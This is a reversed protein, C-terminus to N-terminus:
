HENSKDKPELNELRTELENIKKQLNRFNEEYISYKASTTVMHALLEGLIFYLFIAALVCLVGAFIYGLVEIM